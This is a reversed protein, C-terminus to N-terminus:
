LPCLLAPTQFSQTHSSLLSSSPPKPWHTSPSCYITQPMYSYPSAIHPLPPSSPPYPPLQQGKIKTRCPLFLFLFLSHSSNSSHQGTLPVTPLCPQPLPSPALTEPLTNLSSNEPDCNGSLHFDPPAM